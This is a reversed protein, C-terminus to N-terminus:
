AVEVLVQNVNIAPSRKKVHLVELGIVNGEADFDVIVGPKLEDSDTANGDALTIYLADVESDYRVKM